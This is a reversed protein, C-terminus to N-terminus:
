QGSHARSQPLPLDALLLPCTSSRGVVTIYAYNHKAINFAVVTCGPYSQLLLLNPRSPHVLTCLPMRPSIPAYSVTSLQAFASKTLMPAAAGGMSGGAEEKSPPPQNGAAGADRQKRKWKLLGM